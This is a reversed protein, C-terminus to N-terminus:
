NRICTTTSSKKIVKLMCFMTKIKLLMSVKTDQKYANDKSSLSFIKSCIAWAKSALSFSIFISFSTSTAATSCAPKTFDKIDRSGRFGSFALYYENTSM